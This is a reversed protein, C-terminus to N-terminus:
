PLRLAHRVKFAQTVEDDKARSPRPPPSDDWPPREFTNSRGRPASSSRRDSRSFKEGERTRPLRPKVDSRLFEPLEAGFEDYRGFVASPNAARGRLPQIM